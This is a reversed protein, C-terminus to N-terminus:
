ARQEEVTADEDEPISAPIGAPPIPSSALDEEYWRLFRELEMQRAVPSTLSGHLMFGFAAVVILAFVVTVVMDVPWRGATGALIAVVSGAVAGLFVNSTVSEHHATEKHVRMFRLADVVQPLSVNEKELDEKFLLYRIYQYKYGYFAVREPHKRRLDDFTAAEARFFLFMTIVIALLPANRWLASEQNVLGFIIVFLTVFLAAILAKKRSPFGELITRKFVSAVSHRWYIKNIRIWWDM